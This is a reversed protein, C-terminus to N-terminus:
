FTQRGQEVSHQSSECESAGQVRAHSPARAHWRTLQRTLAEDAKAPVHKGAPVAADAVWDELTLQGDGVWKGYDRANAMEEKLRADPVVEGAEFDVLFM